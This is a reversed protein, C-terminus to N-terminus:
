KKKDENLRIGASAPEGAASVLDLEEESLELGGGFYRSQVDDVAKALAGHGEFRQRDFLERLLKEM